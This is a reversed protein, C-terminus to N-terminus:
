IGNLSGAFKFLTYAKFFTVCMHFSIALPALLLIFSNGIARNGNLVHHDWPLQYNSPPFVKSNITARIIPIIKYTVFILVFSLYYGIVITNYGQLILNKAIVTPDNSNSPHSYSIILGSSIPILIPLILMGFTKQFQKIASPDAKVKRM